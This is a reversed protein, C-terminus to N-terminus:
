SFLKYNEAMKIDYSFKAYAPGNYRRAVVKFDKKKCADHLVKDSEIFKAFAFLHDDEGAQMARMMADPSTYDLTEWHAGMIQFAGWSASEIAAQPHIRYAREFKLWEDNKTYGGPTVNCLDPHQKAVSDRFANVSAQTEGAKRVVALRRHFYHREFLIKPNGSRHMGEGNSEVKAISRVVALEIGLMKACHEYDDMGIITPTMDLGMAAISKPGVVGDAVLGLQTQFKKVADHLIADFFWDEAVKAIGKKNILQQLQLVAKSRDGKVILSLM